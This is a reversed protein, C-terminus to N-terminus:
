MTAFRRGIAKSARINSRSRRRRPFYMHHRKVSPRSGGKNEKFPIIEFPVGFVKAVEDTLKGDDGVEYSSRRLGRGM